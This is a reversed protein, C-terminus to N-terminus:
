SLPQTSELSARKERQDSETDEIKQYSVVADSRSPFALFDYITSDGSCRIFELMHM